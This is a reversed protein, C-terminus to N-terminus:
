KPLYGVEERTPIVIGLCTAEAMVKEVYISFDFTDLETTSVPIQIDRGKITVWKRPLHEHKMAEHIEEASHGTHEAILEYIVWLYRNASLSRRKKYPEITAEKGENKEFFQSELVPDDFIIKKKGIRVRIM